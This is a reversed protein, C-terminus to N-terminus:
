VIYVRYIGINGIHDVRNKSIEGIGYFMLLDLYELNQAVWFSVKLPSIELLLRM